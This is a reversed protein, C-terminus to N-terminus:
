TDEPTPPNDNRVIRSGYRGPVLALDGIGIGEMVEDEHEDWWEDPDPAPGHYAM